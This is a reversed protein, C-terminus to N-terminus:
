AAAPAGAGLALRWMTWGRDAVAEPALGRRGDVRRGSSTRLRPDLAPLELWRFEAAGVTAFLLVEEQGPEVGPLRHRQFVWRIWRGPDLPLGSRGQEPPPYVQVISWDPRLHLATLYLPQRATNGIEFRLEEGPDLAGTAAAAPLEPADFVVAGGPGRVRVQLKGSLPAGPPPAALARVAHHRALHLIREVLPAAWGPQGTSLPPGQNALRGGAADRLEVGGGGDSLLRLDCDGEPGVAVSAFGATPGALEAAVVARQAAPGLLRVRLPQPLAIRHAQTGAPVGDPPLGGRAAAWSLSSGSRVVEVAMGPRPAGGAPAATLGIEFRTGPRVGQAEGAHLLVQDTAADVRLVSVGRRRFDRLPEFVFRDEDGELQPTQTVFVSHVTAFVQEHLQGYSIRRRPALAALLARTLVGERREGDFAYELAREHEACAALLVYGRPSPLWGSRAPAEVATHRRWSALLRERPAVLSGPAPHDVAYFQREAAAGDVPSRLGGGAHCCDLVLTLFIGRRVLRRVLYALEVDRLYRARPDGANCPVLAEDWGDDGKLEPFVTAIRGGHGSYFVLVQEGPQAVQALRELAAVLNDYTPLRSPPPLPGELPAILREIREPPLALAGLLREMGHVDRVAGALNPYAPNAPERAATYRDIGVLLARHPAAMGAATM